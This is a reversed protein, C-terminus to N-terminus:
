LLGTLRATVASVVATFFTGFGILAKSALNLQDRNDQAIQRTDDVDNEVATVRRDLRKLHRDVRETREDLRYLIEDREQDEM